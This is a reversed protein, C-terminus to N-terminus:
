GRLSRVVPMPSYQEEASVQNKKRTLKLRALGGGYGNPCLLGDTLVLPTYTNGTGNSVRDYRWLLRGDDAAFSAIGKDLFVM